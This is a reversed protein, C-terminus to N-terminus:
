APTRVAHSARLVGFSFFGAYQRKRLAANSLVLLLLAAVAAAGGWANRAVM